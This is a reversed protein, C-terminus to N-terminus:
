EGSDEEPLPTGPDPTVVGPLMPWDIDETSQIASFDTTSGLDRLKQRYVRYEEKLEDGLPSDNAQTWDTHFLLASRQVEFWRSRKEDADIEEKIWQQTFTGDDNKVIEGPSIEYVDNGNLYAFKSDKVPAYGVARVEEETFDWTSGMIYYINDCTIYTDDAIDGNEDIKIYDMTNLHM